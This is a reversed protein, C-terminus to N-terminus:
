NVVLQLYASFLRMQGAQDGSYRYLYNRGARDTFQDGNKLVLQQPFYAVYDVEQQLKQAALLKSGNLKQINAAINVYIPNYVKKAGGQGSQTSTSRSITCTTNMMSAISM